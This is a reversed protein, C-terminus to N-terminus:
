FNKRFVKFKPVEERVEGQLCFHFINMHSLKRGSSLVSVFRGILSKENSSSAKAGPFLDPLTPSWALAFEEKPCSGQVSNPSCIAQGPFTKGVRSGARETILSLFRRIVQQNCTNKERCTHNRTKCVYLRCVKAGSFSREKKSQHIAALVLTSPRTLFPKSEMRIKPAQVMQFCRLRQKKSPIVGSTYPTTETM